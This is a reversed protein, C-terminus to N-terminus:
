SANLATIMEEGTLTHIGVQEMTAVTGRTCTLDDFTESTEMGTTCDRLMMCNYHRFFTMQFPSYDRWTICMNTHFGVYFLHVIGRQACLRHLEEGNMIVAEDEVPPLAPHFARHDNCHAVDADRQPEHPPAYQAYGGTKSVFEKPPWEPSDPYEPAPQTMGPVPYIAETQVEGGLLAVWNPHKTAVPWAPAHIVQLGQQRCAEVVPVIKERTIQDTRQWNDSAGCWAWVDVCVLAAQNLPIDWDMHAFHFNSEKREIDPVTYLRCYRPQIHINKDM